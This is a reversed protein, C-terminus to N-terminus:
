RHQSLSSKVTKSESPERSQGQVRLRDLQRQKVASTGYVTRIQRKAEAIRAVVATGGDFVQRMKWAAHDADVDAWVQGAAFPYEGDNVAILTYDVPYGTQVTVLETTASYDTSIVPKGLVM